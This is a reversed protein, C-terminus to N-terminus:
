LNLFYHKLFQNYFTVSTTKNEEKLDDPEKIPSYNVARQMFEGPITNPDFDTIVKVTVTRINKFQYKQVQKQLNTIVPERDKLGAAHIFYISLKM